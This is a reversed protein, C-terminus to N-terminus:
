EASLFDIDHGEALSVYAKKWGSRKGAVRGFFKQKGPVKLTRVSSVKVDFLAEVAKRIELKNADSAVKFVVANGQDGAQSAKESVHPSLLVNFIRERNM